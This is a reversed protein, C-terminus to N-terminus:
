TFKKYGLSSKIKLMFYFIFTLSLKNFIYLILVKRRTFERFNIIKPEKYTMRAKEKMSKIILKTNEYTEKSHVCAGIVALLDTYFNYYYLSPNKPALGHKNVIQSFQLFSFIPIKINERNLQASTSLSKRFYHIYLIDKISKITYMRNILRMNFDVDEGGHTFNTDFKTDGISKKKYLSCWVTGLFNSKYLYMFKDLIDERSIIMEHFCTQKQKGNDFQTIYGCRVIDADNLLAAHTLKELYTEHYEDDHDCFTIYTGSAINLGFNRADCIGGNKKHFSRIRMDKKAYLDCIQASIDKSGDDILLLEFDKFTQALISEITSQLIKGTNYVPMIISVTPM